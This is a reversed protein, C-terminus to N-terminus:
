CAPIATLLRYRAVDRYASSCAREIELLQAREAQDLGAPDLVGALGDVGTGSVTGVGCAAVIKLGARGYIDRLEDENFWNYYQKGLIEGESANAVIAMDAFRHFRALTALMYYRTRHSALLVGQPGLLAALSALADEPRPLTYLVETCLVVDFSAADLQPALARLDGVMLQAQVGARACHERCLGIWEPSIDVGTLSHGMRALPVLFRGAQCGADLIRLNQRGGLSQLMRELYLAAYFGEAPDRLMDAQARRAAARMRLEWPDGFRRWRTALLLRLKEALPALPGLM